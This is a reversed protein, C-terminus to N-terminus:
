YMCLGRNLLDQAVPQLADLPLTSCGDAHLGFHAYRRIRGGPLLRPRTQNDPKQVRFHLSRLRRRFPTQTSLFPHCAPSMPTGTGLTSRPVTPICFSEPFRFFADACLTTATPQKGKSPQSSYRACLKLSLVQSIGNKTFLRKGVWSVQALYVKRRQPRSHM